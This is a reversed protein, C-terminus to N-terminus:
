GARHDFPGLGRVRFRTRQQSIVRCRSFSVPRIGRRHKRCDLAGCRLLQDGLRFREYEKPLVPLIVKAVFLRVGRGAKWCDLDEFSRIIREESM